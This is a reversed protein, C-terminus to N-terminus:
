RCKEFDYISTFTFYPFLEVWKKIDVIKGSQHEDSEFSLPNVGFEHAAQSYYEIRTPHEASSINFIGLEKKEIFLEIIRIVDIQQILNVVQSPNTNISKKALFHVPHRKPGILGSLRLITLNHVRKNQIFEEVKFVGSTSDLESKENVLGNVNKYIGTSSTYIVQCEDSLSNLIKSLVNFFSIDSTPPVTIIFVDFQSLNKPAHFLEDTTTAYVDISSLFNIKDLNRTICYFKNENENLHKVLPLGLWGVGWLLINKSM